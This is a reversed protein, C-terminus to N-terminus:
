WTACREHDSAGAQAPDATTIESLEGISAPHRRQELSAQHLWDTIFDCLLGSREYYAARDQKRMDAYHEFMWERVFSVAEATVNPNADLWRICRVADLAAGREETITAMM